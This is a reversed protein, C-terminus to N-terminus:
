PGPVEARVARVALGGNHARFLEQWVLGTERELSTGPLLLGLRWGALTRRAVQGLRAYLDRLDRQESVRVGYPPNSVLCGRAPPVTLSSVAARRFEVDDAVGARTANASAAAIAGADRDAGIILAPAKPLTQADAAALLADWRAATWGPWHQFAFSRNRGPPIRRALLAAEIPITGSGCFPDVLPTRPDWDSALVLAAALTERLPAKGVALRYGRRHLLAGSSDLSLSLEDRFIRVLVLQGGQAEEAAGAGGAEDRETSAVTGGAAVIAKGIREAVAKQHYLRSKRCSVRLTVPVGAPLWSTWPLDRAKRELEGLARV